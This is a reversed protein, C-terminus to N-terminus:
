RKELLNLFQAASLVPVHDALDLLHKDGSVLVAREAEALAILYDDGAEASRLSPPEEQDSRLDRLRSDAALSSPM